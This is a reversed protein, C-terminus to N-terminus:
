GKFPDLVEDKAFELAQFYANTLGPFSPKEEWAGEASKLVNIPQYWEYAHDALNVIFATGSVVAKPDSTPIYSSYTRQFGVADLEVVFLKDVGYKSKFAGFDRAAFGVSGKALKRKPLENSVLPDPIVVVDIGKARLLTAVQEKLEPLDELPLTRAHDTLTSNAGSAVAVCLLCGAGPLYTNPKPVSSMVIGVRGSGGNLKATDAAVPVQPPLITCAVLTLSASLILFASAVRNM